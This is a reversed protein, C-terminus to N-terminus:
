QGPPKGCGTQRMVSGMPYCGGFGKIDGDRAIVGAHDGILTHNDAGLDRPLFGVLSQLLPIHDDHKAAVSAANELTVLVLGERQDLGIGFELFLVWATLTREEGDAGTSQEQGSLVDQKAQSGGSVGIKHSGELVLAALGDYTGAILAGIDV